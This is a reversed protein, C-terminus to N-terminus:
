KEVKRKILDEIESQIIKVFKSKFPLLFFSVEGIAVLKRDHASIKAWAHHSKITLAGKARNWSYCIQYGKLNHSQEEKLKNVRSEILAILEPKKLRVRKEYITEVAM